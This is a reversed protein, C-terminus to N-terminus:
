IVDVTRNRDFVQPRSYGAQEINQLMLMAASDNTIHRRKRVLDDQQHEGGDLLDTVRDRSNRYNWTTANDNDIAPLRLGGSNSIHCLDM